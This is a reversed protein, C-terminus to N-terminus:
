LVLIISFVYLCVSDEIYYSLIVPGPLVELFLKMEANNGKNSIERLQGVQM